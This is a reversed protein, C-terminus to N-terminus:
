DERKKGVFAVGAASTLAMGVYLAIGADFTKPSGKTNDTKTDTTPQYYYYGGSSTSTWKATLTINNKAKYEAAVKTTGNYWGAFTYGSRTPTPLTITSDKAVKLAKAPTAQNDNYNLTVTVMQEESVGGSYDTGKVPTVEISQGNGNEKSLYLHEITGDTYKFKAGYGKDHEVYLNTVTGGNMTFSGPNSASYANSNVFVNGIAGGNIATLAGTANAGIWLDSSYQLYKDNQYNEVNKNGVISGSNMEFSASSTMYVGGIFGGVFDPAKGNTITAGDITLKGKNCFIVRCKENGDVTVNKLTVTASVYLVCATENDSGSTFNDAAKITYKGQGDITVDKALNLTSTLTIDAALKIEGGTAIATKLEEASNVSTPEAAWSVSCLALAMVLALITALVKKM